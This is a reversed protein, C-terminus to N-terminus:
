NADPSEVLKTDSQAYLFDDLTFDKNEIARAMVLQAIVTEVIPRVFGHLDPAVPVITLRPHGASPIDRESAATVLVVYAGSTLATDPVTLERGDGYVLLVTSDNIPEMPGHLYQYTEYAASPIRLGERFMLAAEAASAFSTARGIVDISSADAVTRAVRTAVDDYTELAAKVIDPIEAVQPGAPVAGMRDLLLAYALLTATYGSTYVGSDDFGGLSLSTDVVEALPAAPFNSIGIRRGVTLARGAAIPEPSRGSESVIVYHDAPQFGPASLLLDSAVLNVARVGAAALVAVLAHGSHSSAGMAVVGITEGAQWPSLECRELEQRVTSYALALSTPQSYMADAFPIKTSMM